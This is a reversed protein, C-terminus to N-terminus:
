RSPIRTAMPAPDTRHPTNGCSYEAGTRSKKGTKSPPAPSRGSWLPNKPFQAPAGPTPRRYPSMGQPRGCRFLRPARPTQLPARETNQIGPPPSLAAAGAIAWAGDRGCAPATKPVTGCKATSYPLACGAYAPNIFLAWQPACLQRGKLERSVSPPFSIGSCGNGHNTEATCAGCYPPPSLQASRPRRLCPQSPRFVRRSSGARSPHPLAAHRLQCRM